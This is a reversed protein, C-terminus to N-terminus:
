ITSVVVMPILLRRVKKTVFTGVEGNRVPRYAYVFGSLFTFMPMRVLVPGDVILIRYYSGAGVGMGSARTGGVVHYAVLMLCAIGRVTDTQLRSVPHHQAARTRSRGHVM